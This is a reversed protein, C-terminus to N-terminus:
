PTGSQLAKHIQLVQPIVLRSNDNYLIFDALENKKPDDWQKEMIQVIQTEPRHPDRQKIREMRLQKPATVHITFELEKFSGTEFLLAAEKLVYKSNQKGAWERFDAQVVPHVLSNIKKTLIPDAFVKDALFKRNLSGDQFYSQAGFVSSIESKLGKQHAMLWRAKEDANYVPVDLLTFIKTVLTKGAGIGGSIGVLVPKPKNM